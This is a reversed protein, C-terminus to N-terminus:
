ASKRDRLYDAYGQQTWWHDPNRPCVWVDADDTTFHFQQTCEPDTCWHPYERVLRVVQRETACEPCPAGREPAQSDRLVNELHTRCKRLERSLGAFNGAEDQALRGLERDIVDAANTITWVDPEALDYLRVILWAARTLVNFPHREDDDPLFVKLAKELKQDPVHDFLWQKDILRRASFKEYNAGPMALMFAESHVGATLAESILEPARQVIAKLDMRTRGLCRACTLEGWGLHNACTKRATCHASRPLDCPEGDPQVYTGDSFKCHTDNM